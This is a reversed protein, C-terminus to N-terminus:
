KNVYVLRGKTQKGNDILIMRSILNNVVTSAYQRSINLSSAINNISMGYDGSEEVKDVIEHEIKTEGKKPIARFNLTVTTMDEPSTEEVIQPAEYNNLKMANFMKPIGTGAKEAVGIRRFFTLISQNRARSLGGRIAQTKGVPMRGANRVSLSRPNRVIKLPMRLFFSHNSFANALMEKVCDLMLIKGMDRGNMSVYSTPLDINIDSIVLRYFDYMNGSWALDDSTIRNDWKSIYTTNRQYDLFYHPWINLIETFSTLLVVGANTLVLKGKDDNVLLATKILFEEDSLDKYLNNGQERNVDNRYAHLSEINVNAFSYGKKNPLSDYCDETNDNLYHKIQEKRLLYDGELDRGYAMSLNNNIYVPKFSNPAEKVKIVVVENDEYKEISIDDEDIIPYSVKSENHITNIIDKVMKSANKVGVVENTPNGEKVGLYITGGQTNAFSSITEYLSKPVGNKAEKFEIHTKEKLYKIDKM